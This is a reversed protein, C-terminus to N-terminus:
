NGGKGLLLSILDDDSIVDSKTIITEGFWTPCWPGFLMEDVFYWGMQERREGKDPAIPQLIYSRPNPIEVIEFATSLGIKKLDYMMGRPLWCEETGYCIEGDEAIKNVMRFHTSKARREEIDPRIRVIDGLKYFM